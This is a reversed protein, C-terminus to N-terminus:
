EGKRLLSWSMKKLSQPHRLMMLFLWEALIVSQYKEQKLKKKMDIVWPSWVEKETPQIEREKRKLTSRGSWILLLLWNWSRLFKWSRCDVQRLDLINFTFQFIDGFSFLLQFSFPSHFVTEKTEFLDSCSPKLFGDVLPTQFELLM